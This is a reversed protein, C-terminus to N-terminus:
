RVHRGHRLLMTLEGSRGFDDDVFGAVRPAVMLGRWENLTRLDMRFRMSYRGDEDTRKAVIRTTPHFETFVEVLVGKMPRKQLDRVTGTVVWEAKVSAADIHNEHCHGDKKKLDRVTPLKVALKKMVPEPVRQDRVSEVFHRDDGFVAASLGSGATTSNV